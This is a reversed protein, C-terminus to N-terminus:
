RQPADDEPAADGEPLAAPAEDQAAAAAEAETRAKYGRYDLAFYVIVFAFVGYSSVQGADDIRSFATVVVGVAMVLLCAVVLWRRGARRFSICAAALGAGLAAAIVTM